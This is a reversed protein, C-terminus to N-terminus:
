PSLYIAKQTKPRRMYSTYIRFNRCIDFIDLIYQFKQCIDSIKSNRYYKDCIQFFTFTRIKLGKLKTNVRLDCFKLSTM